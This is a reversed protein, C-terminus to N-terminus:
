VTLTKKDDMPTTVPANMMNRPYLIFSTLTSNSEVSHWVCEHIFPRYADVLKPVAHPPVGFCPRHEAGVVVSAEVAPRDGTEAM